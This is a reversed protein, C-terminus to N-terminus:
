LADVLDKLKHKNDCKTCKVYLPLSGRIMSVEAECCPSKIEGCDDCDEEKSSPESFLKKFVDPTSIDLDELNEQITQSPDFPPM